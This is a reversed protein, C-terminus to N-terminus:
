GAGDALEGNGEKENGTGPAKEAAAVLAAGESGAGAAAGADGPKKPKVAAELAEAAGLLVLVM